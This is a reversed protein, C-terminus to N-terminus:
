EIGLSRKYIDKIFETQSAFATKSSEDMRDWVKEMQKALEPNQGRTQERQTQINALSQRYSRLANDLSKQMDTRARAMIAQSHVAHAARLKRIQADGWATIEKEAAAVLEDITPNTM